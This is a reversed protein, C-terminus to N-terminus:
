TSAHKAIIIRVESTSTAAQLYVTRVDIRLTLAQGAPVVPSHDTDIAQDYDVYIDNITETSLGANSITIERGAPVIFSTGGTDVKKRIRYVQSAM